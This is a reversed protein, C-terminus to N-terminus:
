VRRQVSAARRQPAKGPRAMVLIVGGRVSERDSMPRAITDTVLSRRATAPFGVVGGFRLGIARAWLRVLVQNVRVFFM